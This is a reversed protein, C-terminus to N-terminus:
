EGKPARGLVRRGYEDVIQLRGYYALLRAGAAYASLACTDLEEGNGCAQWLVGELVDLARELEAGIPQRIARREVERFAVYVTRFLRHWDETVVAANGDPLATVTAEYGTTACCRWQVPRLSVECGLPEELAYNLLGLFEAKVTGQRDGCSYRWTNEGIRELVGICDGDAIALIECKTIEWRVGPLSLPQRYPKNM